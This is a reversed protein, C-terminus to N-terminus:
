GPTAARSGLAARLAVDLTPHEFEFGAARLAAPVARKSSLIAEDALQGLALRMAFSPVLWPAPRGTARALQRTFEINTVPEPATFNVPGSVAPQELAFRIAAIQDALSIWPMYQRGSGLRGGLCFRFVLRLTPLLGGSHHLVPSTRMLVVRAGAQQAASTAREWEQCLEPLFGTGAPAQEDLVRDGSEGYVDVGSGNVLVGIGREAVAGALVETPTSRSDLLVQKRAQSWRRDAIGAGCLNVVADAGDLAGAGIDGAPPDWAREDSAAPTRRVLRVVEHGADRLVPVLASGLFGSSGALVVRM